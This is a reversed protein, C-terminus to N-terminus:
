AEKLVKSHKVKQLNGCHILIGAKKLDPISVNFTLSDTHPHGKEKQQRQTEPKLTRERVINTGRQAVVYDRLKAKNAVFVERDLVFIYLRAQGNAFWSDRWEGDCEVQEELCVRKFYYVSRNTPAKISVPINDLWGDIDLYVDEHRSPPDLRLVRKLQQEKKIGPEQAYNM